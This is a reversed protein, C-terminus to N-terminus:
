TPIVFAVQGGGGAERGEVEEKGDRGAFPTGGEQPRKEWGAWPTVKTRVMSSHFLLWDSTTAPKNSSMGDKKM